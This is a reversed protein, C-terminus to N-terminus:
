LLHELIGGNFEPFKAVPIRIDGTTRRLGDAREKISGAADVISALLEDPTDLKIKNVETKMWGWLCFYLPTLNTSGFLETEAVM